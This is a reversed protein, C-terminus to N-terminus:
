NRKGSALQSSLLVIPYVSRYKLIAMIGSKGSVFIVSTPLNILSSFRNTLFIVHNTRVVNDAVKIKERVNPASQM